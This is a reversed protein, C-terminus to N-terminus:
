QRISDGDFHDLHLFGKGSGSERKHQHSEKQAYYHDFIDSIGRVEM